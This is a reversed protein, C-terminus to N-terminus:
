GLPPIIRFLRLITSGTGKMFPPRFIRCLVRFSEHFWLSSLSRDGQYRHIFGELMDLYIDVMEKRRSDLAPFMKRGGVFLARLLDFQEDSIDIRPLQRRITRLAVRNHNVYQLRHHMSSESGEHVRYFLLPTNLNNGCTHDLLRTWLEYDEVAQFNVDYHLDKGALISKRIIVTPHAFPCELLSRWRIFLDNAPWHKLRLKRGQADILWCATGLIGIEPHKILFALQKGLRDPAAIDDSDMRAVYQGRALTLGLNLSAILGKRVQDVLLIRNDTIKGLIAQTSDTSGDNIIILEFDILDQALISSVAQHLYREGNHVPMIVSVLPEAMM